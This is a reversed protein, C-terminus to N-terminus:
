RVKKALECIAAVDDLTQTPHGIAFYLKVTKWGRSYVQEAV